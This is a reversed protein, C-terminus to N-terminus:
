PFKPSVNPISTLDRPIINPIIQNSVSWWSRSRVAPWAECRFLETRGRLTAAATRRPEVAPSSLFETQETVFHPLDHWPEIIMTFLESVNRGYPSTNALHMDRFPFWRFSVAAHQRVVHTGYSHHRYDPSDAASGSEFLSLNLFPDVGGGGFEHKPSNGLFTNLISDRVYEEFVHM